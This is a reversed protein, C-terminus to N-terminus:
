LNKIFDKVTCYKDAAILIWGEIHIPPIRLPFMHLRIAAAEIETLDEGLISKAYYVGREGHLLALAAHTAYVRKDHRDVMGLDHCLAAIYLDKEHVKIGHKKLFAAISQCECMVSLVHTKLTINCHHTQGDMRKYIDSESIKKLQEKFTM